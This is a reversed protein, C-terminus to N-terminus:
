KTDPSVFYSPPMRWYTSVDFAPPSLLFLAIGAACLVLGLAAGWRFVRARDPARAVISGLSWCDGVALSVFTALGAVSAPVAM